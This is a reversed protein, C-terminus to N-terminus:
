ETQNTTEGTATIPAEPEAQPAPPNKSQVLDSKLAKLGDTVTHFSSALNDKMLSFPSVKKDVVAPEAPSAASSTGLMAVWLLVLLACAVIMTWTLIHKRTEEPKSRLHEVFQTVKKRM